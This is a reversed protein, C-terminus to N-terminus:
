MEEVNWYFKYPVNDIQITVCLEDGPRYKVNVYGGMAKGPDIRCWTLYNKELNERKSELYNEYEEQRYAAKLGARYPDYVNAVARYRNGYSDSANYTGTATPVAAQVMAATANLMTYFFLAVSQRVAVKQDFECHSLVYLNNYKWEGNKKQKRSMVKISDPDFTVAFLSYNEVVIKLQYYEGYDHSTEVIMSVKLDNVLYSKTTKVYTITNGKDCQSYYRTITDMDELKPTVIVQLNTECNLLSSQGKSNYRRYVNGEPSGNIYKASILPLGSNFYSVYNGNLIGNHYQSESMLSGSEFFQNIYGNFLFESGNYTCTGERFLKGSMYYDRFPKLDAKDAAGPVIRYYTAFEKYAIQNEDADYYITDVKEPKMKRVQDAVAPTAFSISFLLIPLLHKIDMIYSNKFLM